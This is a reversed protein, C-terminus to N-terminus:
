LELMRNIVQESAQTYGEKQQHKANQHEKSDQTVDDPQLNESWCTGTRVFARM